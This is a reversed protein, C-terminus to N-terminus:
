KSDTVHVVFVVAVHPIAVTVMALLAVILLQTEAVTSLTSLDCHDHLIRM